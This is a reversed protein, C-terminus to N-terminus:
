CSSQDTFESNATNDESVTPRRGIGFLVNNDRQNVWHATQPAPREDSQDASLIIHIAGVFTRSESLSRGLDRLKKRLSQIQCGVFSTMPIFTVAGIQM